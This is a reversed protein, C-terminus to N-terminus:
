RPRHDDFEPEPDPPPIPEVVRVPDALSGTLPQVWEFAGSAQLRDIAKTLPDPGGPQTLRLALTPSGPRMKVILVQTDRLAKNVQDITANTGVVASLHPTAAGQRVFRTAAGSPEDYHTADYDRVANTALENAAGALLTGVGDSGAIEGLRWQLAKADVPLEPDHRLTITDASLLRARPALDGIEARGEIVTIGSGAGIIEISLRSRWEDDNAVLVQYAREVDGGPLSIEGVAELQLTLSAPLEGATTEGATNALPSGPLDTQAPVAAGAPDQGSKLYVFGAAVLLGGATFMALRRRSSNMNM